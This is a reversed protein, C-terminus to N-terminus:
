HQQFHPFYKKLEPLARRGKALVLSIPEYIEFGKLFEKCENPILSWFERLLDFYDFDEWGPFIKQCMIVYLLNLFHIETLDNKVHNVMEIFLSQGPWLLFSELIFYPNMKLVELRQDAAMLLVCFRCSHDYYFGDLTRQIIQLREESTLKQPLLGQLSVADWNYAHFWENERINSNGIQTHWRIWEIVNINSPYESYPVDYMEINRFFDQLGASMQEWISIVREKPWYNCALRFRHRMQLVDSQILFSATKLRDITGDMKWHFKSTIRQEVEKGYFSKHQKKWMEVEYNMPKMLSMIKEQLPESYVSNSIKKKMIVKWEENPSLWFKTNKFFQQMESDNYLTIAFPLAAINELSPVFLM